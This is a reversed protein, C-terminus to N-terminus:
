PETRQEALRMGRIGEGISFPRHQMVIKIKIDVVEDKYGHKAYDFIQVTYNIALLSPQTKTAKEKPSPRSSAKESCKYFSIEIDNFLRRRKKCFAPANEAVAIREEM